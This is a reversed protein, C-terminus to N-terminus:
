SGSGKRTEGPNMAPQMQASARYCAHGIATEDLEPGGVEDAIVGKAVILVRHCIEALQEWDASACIVSCGEAAIQRVLAFIDLRAGVDLGVTPEQLLLLRPNSALWKALLVKQQNGGSLSGVPSAAGQARIGYTVIARTAAGTMARRRLGAGRQYAGLSCLTANDTISLDLACGARERDEPVFAIKNRLATRPDMGTLSHTAEGIRLSGGRARRAGFVLPLIEEFGSGALGTIGLIEHPAVGFSVGSSVDGDLGEVSVFPHHDALADWQRAQAGRTVQRGVILEALDAGSVGATARTARVQGDRLVTVEDTVELIEDIDHSILLIAGGQATVTRMTRYLWEKEPLTFSATAEDLVLIGPRTADGARRFDELARVIALMAQQSRSLSDVAAAPNFHLGYAELVTRANRREHGWRIRLRAPQTVNSVMLNETISLAPALGLSQHVFAIGLERYGGPKVPLRIEQGWATVSGGSDPAHYGSLVKVLTSKGSGNEGLLGHVSSGRIRFSAGVLARTAGFTKSVERVELAM